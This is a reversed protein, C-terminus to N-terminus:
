PATMTLPNLPKPTKVTTKHKQAEPTKVKFDFGRFMPSHLITKIFPPEKISKISYPKSKIYLKLTPAGITPVTSRSRSTGVTTTSYIQIDQAVVTGMELRQRSRMGRLGFDLFVIFGACYSRSFVLSLLMRSGFFLELIGLDWLGERFIM